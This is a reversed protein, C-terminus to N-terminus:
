NRQTTSPSGVPSPTLIVGPGRVWILSLWYSAVQLELALSLWSSDVQFELVPLQELVRCFVIKCTTHHIKSLDSYMELLVNERLNLQCLM